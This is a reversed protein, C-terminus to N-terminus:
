CPTLVEDDDHTLLWYLDSHRGKPEVVYRKQNSLRLARLAGDLRPVALLPCSPADDLAVKPINYRGSGHRRPTGAATEYDWKLAERLRRRFAKLAEEESKRHAKTLAADRQEAWVRRDELATALEDRSMTITTM